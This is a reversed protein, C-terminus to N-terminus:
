FSSGAVAQATPVASLCRKFFECNRCGYQYELNRPFAEREIAGAVECAMLCFRRFDEPTRTTRKVDIKPTKTKTLTVLAIGDPMGGYLYAYGLAYATLQLDNDADSQSAARGSVKFEYLCGESVLDIRGDLAHESSGEGSDPDLLPITFLLEADTSKVEAFQAVYLESFAKAMEVYASEEEQKFRMERGFRTADDLEAEWYLRFHEYTQEPTLANKAHHFESIAYHMASGFVMEGSLFEPETGEVYRFRYQRGCSLYTRLRTVSLIM